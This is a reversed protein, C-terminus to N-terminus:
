TSSPGEPAADDERNPMFAWWALAGLAALALGAGIILWVTTSSISSAPPPSPDGDLVVPDVGLELLNTTESRTTEGEPPIAEFVISWNEASPVVVRAGWVGNGRDIMATPGLEEYSSFPRVIVAEFSADMEVTVELELGEEDSLATAAAEGFPSSLLVSAIIAAVVLM